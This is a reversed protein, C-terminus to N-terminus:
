AAGRRVITARLGALLGASADASLTGARREYHQVVAAVTVIATGADRARLFWEVDEGRTLREDFPGLANWTARAALAAGFSWLVFPDGAAVGGSTLQTLGVAIADPTGALASRRPDPTGAVWLDDADLFGVHAGRATALGANRAAAAGRGETRLVSVRPDLAAARSAGDDRSGDDVVIVELLRDASALVSGVAAEITDAADRAPIVVSLDPVSM